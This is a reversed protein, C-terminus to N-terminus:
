IAYTIKFGAKKWKVSYSNGMDDSVSLITKLSLLNTKM